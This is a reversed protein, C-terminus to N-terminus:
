IVNKVKVIVDAWVEEMLLFCYESIGTKSSCLHGKWYLAIISFYHIFYLGFHQSAHKTTDFRYKM